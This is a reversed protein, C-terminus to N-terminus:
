RRRPYLSLCRYRWINVGPEHAPISPGMSHHFWGFLAISTRCLQPCCEFPSADPVTLDHQYIEPTLVTRVLVYGVFLISLGTQYKDDNLNLAEELGQLRAAAYNNRDIYNMLYVLIVLPMIRADIKRRLKKQIVLEEDTLQGFHMAEERTVKSDALVDQDNLMEKHAIEAKSGDM